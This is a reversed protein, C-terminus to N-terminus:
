RRYERDIEHMAKMVHKASPGILEGALDESLKELRRTEEKSQAHPLQGLRYDEHDLMETIKLRADDESEAYITRLTNGKSREDLFYFKIGKKNKNKRSTKGM